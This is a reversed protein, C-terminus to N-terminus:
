STSKTPLGQSTLPVSVYGSPQNVWVSPNLLIGTSNWTGTM